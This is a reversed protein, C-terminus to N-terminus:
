EPKIIFQESSQFWLALNDRGALQKLLFSIPTARHLTRTLSQPIYPKVFLHFILM